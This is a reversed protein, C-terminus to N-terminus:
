FCASVALAKSAEAGECPQGLTLPQGHVIRLFIRLRGSWSHSATCHKLRVAAFQKRAQPYRLRPVSDTIISDDTETLSRTVGKL